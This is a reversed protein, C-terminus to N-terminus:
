VESKLCRTGSCSIDKSDSRGCDCFAFILFLPVSLHLAFMYRFDNSLAALLFPGWLFVFPICFIMATRRKKIGAIFCCLLMIWAKVYTGPGNIGLRIWTALFEMKNDELFQDYAM